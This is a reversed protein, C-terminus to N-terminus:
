LTQHRQPCFPSIQRSCSDRSGRSEHMRGGPPWAAVSYRYSDIAPLLSSLTVHIWPGTIIIKLRHSGRRFRSIFKSCLGFRLFAQRSYIYIKDKEPAGVELRAAGWTCTGLHGLGGLNALSGLSLCPCVCRVGGCPM